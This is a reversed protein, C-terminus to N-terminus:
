TLVSLVQESMVAAGSWAINHLWSLEQLSKHEHM